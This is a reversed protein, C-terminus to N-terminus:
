HQSSCYSGNLVMEFFNLHRISRIYIKKIFNLHKFIYRTYKVCAYINILGGFHLLFIKFCVINYYLFSKLM